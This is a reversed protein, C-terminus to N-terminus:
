NINVASTASHLVDANEITFYFNLIKEKYQFTTFSALFIFGPTLTLKSVLPYKVSSLKFLTSCNVV